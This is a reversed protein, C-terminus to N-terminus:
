MKLEARTLLYRLIQDRSIMGALRGNVLAPLQNIDERGIIELAESVPTEPTVTRLQDLPRMVEYVTTFPWRAQAIGKVENPTILGTVVGQEAVLFCRRGTHLLSDNVFTQLNDNGDVMTCDLTMLDGVRVGRLRETLEQQAYTAKAANLLFWGIFAMWLGSFGAGAFFRYIGLVIFGFAVVQGTLSAVRVAREASGTYWWIFARLVRGGDMPFGPLMNFIALGVNIYGLWVLMAMLPTTPETMITWGLLWALMLCVFGILASTIPGVISVLFETKADEAEKEFQAVGGLAFLTISHVPLGRRRAVLAHSLEHAVIAAFFLVATIIAMGWIVGQGWNPHATGFHGALSFAILLAIILWSYHLGIKIGFIRGLKIQAEM